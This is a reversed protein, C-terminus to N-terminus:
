LLNELFTQVRTKLPALSGSTYEMEVYINPVKLSNLYDKLEPVEYGFPDCFRVLQIVVGEVNWKEIYKGLHVFRSELDAPHDKELEGVEAERFTRACTLDAYRRTLGDMPDDTLPVDRFYTRPGMCHDDMVVEAEYDEILTILPLADLCAGYVLIRKKGQDPKQGGNAKTEEIVESLLEIGQDPSLSALALMLRLTDAGSVPQPTVRKLNYFDRVLARLRNHKEIAAKLEQPSIEKGMWAEASAKFKDLSKRFMEIGWSHTTAPMDLYHYYEYDKRSKWVHISKEQADCSHAGVMGDLFDYKGKFVSDICNRMFPCFSAPLIKEVATVPEELDGTIRFHAVDLATLIELPVYSCFYGATKKGQAKLDKIGAFRDELIQKVRALGKAAEPM